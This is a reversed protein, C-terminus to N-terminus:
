AKALMRTAHFLYPVVVADNEIADVEELQELLEHLEDISLGSLYKAMGAKLEDPMDALTAELQELTDEDLEQDGAFLEVQHAATEILAGNDMLLKLFGEMAEHEESEDAEAEESEEAEVEEPEVAMEDFDADQAAMYAGLKKAPIAM